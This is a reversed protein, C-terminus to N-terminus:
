WAEKEKKRIVSKNKKIGATITSIELRILAM